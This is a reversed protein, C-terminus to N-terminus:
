ASGRCAAAFRRAAEAPPALPGASQTGYSAALPSGGEIAVLLDPPIPGTATVGPGRRGVVDAVLLWAERDTGLSFEENSAVPTFGPATAVLTGDPRCALTLDGTALTRGDASLTWRDLGAPVPLPVPIVVCATALLTAALALPQRM